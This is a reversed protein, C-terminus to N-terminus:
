TGIAGFSGEPIELSSSRSVWSFMQSQSQPELVSLESGPTGLKVRRPKKHHHNTHPIERVKVLTLRANDTVNTVRRILNRRLLNPFTKTSENLEDGTM